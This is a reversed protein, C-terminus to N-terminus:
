NRSFGVGRREVMVEGHNPNRQVMPQRLPALNTANQQGQHNWPNLAVQNQWPNILSMNGIKELFLQMEGWNQPLKPHM